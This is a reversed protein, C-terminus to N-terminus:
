EVSLWRCLSYVAEHPRKGDVQEKEELEREGSVEGKGDRAM